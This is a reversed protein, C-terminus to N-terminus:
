STRRRRVVRYIAIAIIVFLALAAIPLSLLLLWGTLAALALFPGYDTGDVICPTVAAGRTVCGHAEAFHSAWVIHAIPLLCIVIVVALVAYIIRISM